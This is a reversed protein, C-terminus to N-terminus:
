VKGDPFNPTHMHLM